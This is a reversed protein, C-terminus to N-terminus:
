ARPDLDISAVSVRWATVVVFSSPDPLAALDAVDEHRRLIHSAPIGVTAAVDTNAHSFRVVLGHFLVSVPDAALHEHPIMVTPASANM